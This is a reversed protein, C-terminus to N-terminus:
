PSSETPASGPDIPLRLMFVTQGPRSRYEILGGHRSLIEQALPLGLGTGDPNGSVLPYFISDGLEAAVGPGDDEIEINAIVKHRREGIIWNTLARTRLTVRGAAGASRSVAQVANRAINLVAQLMQDRDVPIPPLSPDYDRVLSIGPPAENELLARVRELIEHINVTERRPARIPGLLSDTLAALRDAEGIIIRTYERLEETALQKELLQAAGRLGGLPNRIEHALQSIVRRSADHQNILAKERDIHRWQTADILELVVYLNREWRVPTARGTVRMVESQRYAPRLDFEHGFTQSSSVAREILSGLPALEPQLSPLHRDLAQNASVGLLSEAAGNLFCVYGDATVVVVATTISDLITAPVPSGGARM